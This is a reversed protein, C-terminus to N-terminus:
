LGYIFYKKQVIHKILTLIERIDSFIFDPEGSELEQRKQTRTLVGATMIGANEGELIDVITDGVKLVTLRDKIKLKEMSDNIMIPDHRSKGLVESSRIYIFAHIKWGVNHIIRIILDMPLGSGIGIRIGNEMLTKFM